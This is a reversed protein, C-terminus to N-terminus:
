KQAKIKKMNESNAILKIMKHLTDSSLKKM